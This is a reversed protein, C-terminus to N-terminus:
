DPVYRTPVDRVLARGHIIGVDFVDFDVGRDEEFDDWVGFNFGLYGDEPLEWSKAVLVRRTPLIAVSEYSTEPGRVRATPDFLGIGFWCRPEVSFEGPQVVAYATYVDGGHCPVDGGHHYEVDVEGPDLPARIGRHRNTCVQPAAPVGLSRRKSPNALWTAVDPTGDESWGSLKGDPRQLEAFHDAGARRRVRPDLISNGHIM